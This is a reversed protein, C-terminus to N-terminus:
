LKMGLRVKVAVLQLLHRYGYLASSGSTGHPRDVLGEHIYYRVTRSDPIATVKHRDQRGAVQPIIEAALHVLDDITLDKRPRHASLLKRLM